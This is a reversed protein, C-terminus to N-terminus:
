TKGSDHFDYYFDNVYVNKDIYYMKEGINKHHKEPFIVNLIEKLKYLKDVLKCNVKTDELNSYFELPKPLLKKCVM